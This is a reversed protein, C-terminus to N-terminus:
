SFEKREVSLEPLVFKIQSIYPYSCKCGAAVGPAHERRPTYTRTGSRCSISICLGEIECANINDGYEM